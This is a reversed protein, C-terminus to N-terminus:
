DSTKKEDMAVDISTPMKVWSGSLGDVWCSILCLDILFFDAAWYGWSVSADSSVTQGSHTKNQCDVSIDDKDKAMKVHRNSATRYVGEDNTILCNAHVPEGQNNYAGIYVNATDDSVISACGTTMALIASLAIKTAQPKM